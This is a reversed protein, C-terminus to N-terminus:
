SGNAKTGNRKISPSNERGMVTDMTFIAKTFEEMMLLINEKVSSVVMCSNDKLLIGMELTFNNEKVMNYIKQGHAKMCIDMKSIKISVKARQLITKSEELLTVGLNSCLYEM